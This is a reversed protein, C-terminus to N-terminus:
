VGLTSNASQLICHKNSTKVRSHVQEFRRLKDFEKVKHTPQTYPEATVCTFLLLLDEAGKM